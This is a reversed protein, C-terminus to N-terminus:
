ACVHWPSMNCPCSLPNYGPDSSATGASPRAGEDFLGSLVAWECSRQRDQWGTKRKRQSLVRHIVIVIPHLSQDLLDVWLRIQM